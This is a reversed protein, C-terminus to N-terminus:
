WYYHSDLYDAAQRRVNRDCGRLRIFIGTGVILLSSEEAMAHQCDVDTRCPDPSAGRGSANAPQCNALVNMIPQAAASLREYETDLGNSASVQPGRGLQEDITPGSYDRVQGSVYHLWADYSSQLATRNLADQASCAASLRQSTAVKQMSNDIFAQIEDPSTVVCFDNSAVPSTAKPNPGCACLFMTLSGLVRRM